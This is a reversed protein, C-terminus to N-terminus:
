IKKNKDDGLDVTLNFVYRKEDVKTDYDCVFYGLREFQFHDLHKLNELINRNALSNDKIVLSLPNLEELPEKLTMPEDVNWLYDYLRVEVREADKESIWHIRGKTKKTESSYECMIELIKGTEKDVVFEKFMIVGSYKLGVPQYPTLGFFDSDKTDKFDSREIFITKSLIINRTGLEKNKPFLPSEIVESFSDELNVLTIKIPDIVAM